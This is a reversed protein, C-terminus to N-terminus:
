MCVHYMVCVTIGRCTCLVHAQVGEPPPLPSPFPLDQVRPQFPPRGAFSVSWVSNAPSHPVSVLRLSVLLEILGGFGVFGVGLTPGLAARTSVDDGWSRRAPLELSHPM